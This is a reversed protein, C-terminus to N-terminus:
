KFTVSGTPKSFGKYWVIYLVKPETFSTPLPSRAKINANLYLHSTEIFGFKKLISTIRLM